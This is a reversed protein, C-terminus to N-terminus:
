DCDISISLASWTRYVKFLQSICGLEILFMNVTSQVRDAHLSYLLLHYLVDSM